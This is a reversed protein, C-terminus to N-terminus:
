PNSLPLSWTRTRPENVITEKLVCEDDEQTLFGQVFMRQEDKKEGASRPRGFLTLLERHGGYHRFNPSEQSRRAQSKQTLVQVSEYPTASEPIRVRAQRSVATGLSRDNRFSIVKTKM